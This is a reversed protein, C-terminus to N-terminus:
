VERAPRRAPDGGKPGKVRGRAAQHLRQREVRDLPAPLVSWFSSWDADMGRVFDQTLAIPTVLPKELLSLGQMLRPTSLPDAFRGLLAMRGHSTPLIPGVVRKWLSCRELRIRYAKDQALDVIADVHEPANQLFTALAIPDRQALINEAWALRHSETLVALRAMRRWQDLTAEAWSGAQEVADHYFTTSLGPPPAPRLLQESVAQSVFPHREPM